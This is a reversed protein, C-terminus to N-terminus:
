SPVSVAHYDGAEGRISEQSQLRVIHAEADERHAFVLAASAGLVARNARDWIVYALHQM